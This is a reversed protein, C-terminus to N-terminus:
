VGAMKFAAEIKFLLAMVTWHWDKFISEIKLDSSEKEDGNLDSIHYELSNM